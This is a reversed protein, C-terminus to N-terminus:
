MAKDPHGGLSYMGSLINSVHHKLEAPHILVGDSRKYNEGRRGTIVVIGDGGSGQTPKIVFSSYPALIKELHVVQHEIEIVAYLEPVAINAKIALNKTLLKDDVLPYLKRPNYHAIYEANRQNMGLIGMKTLSQYTLIPGLLTNLVRKFFTPWTSKITM